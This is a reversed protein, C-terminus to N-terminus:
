SEVLRPITNQFVARWVMMTDCRAPPRILFCSRLKQPYHSRGSLFRGLSPGTDTEFFVGNQAGARVDRCWSRQLVATM